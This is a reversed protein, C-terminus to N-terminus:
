TRMVCDSRNRIFRSGWRVDAVQAELHARLAKRGASKTSRWASLALDLFASEARTPATDNRVEDVRVVHAGKAYRMAAAVAAFRAQLNKTSIESQPLASQMLQESRRAAETNPKRGTDVLARSLEDLILPSWDLHISDQFDLHILLGRTTAGFLTDTDTDAVVPVVPRDARSSKEM